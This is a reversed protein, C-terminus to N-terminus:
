KSETLPVSPPAKVARKGNWAYLSIEANKCSQASLTVYVAGAYSKVAIPAGARTQPNRSVSTAKGLRVILTDVANAAVARTVGVGDSGEQPLISVTAAVNVRVPVKATDAAQSFAGAAFLLAALVAAKAAANKLFPKASHYTRM